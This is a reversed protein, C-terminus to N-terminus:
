TTSRARLGSIAFKIAIVWAALCIIWIAFNEAVAGRFSTTPGRFDDLAPIAYAVTAFFAVLGLLIALTLSAVRRVSLRARWALFYGGSVLSAIGILIAWAEKNDTM